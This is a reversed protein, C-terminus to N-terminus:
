PPSPFWGSGGRSLRRRPQWPSDSGAMGVGVLMASVVLAGRDTSRRWFILLGLGSWLLPNPLQLVFKWIGYFGISLGMAHLEQLQTPTLVPTHSQRFAAVQSAAQLATLILAFAIWAARAATLRRAGELRASANPNSSM